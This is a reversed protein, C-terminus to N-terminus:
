CADRLEDCDSASPGKTALEHGIRSWPAL